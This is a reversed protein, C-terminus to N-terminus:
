FKYGIGIYYQVVSDVDVKINNGLVTKSGDVNSKLYRLGIELEVKDSIDYVFGVEPGYMLGNHDIDYNAQNWNYAVTAGIFPTFQSKNYFMYDYNVGLYKGDTGKEKNILGAALGLRGFDYYKGLRIAEYTTSLDADSSVGNISSTADSKLSGFEFGVGFDGVKGAFASSGILLMLSAFVVTKKM